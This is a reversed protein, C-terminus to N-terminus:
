NALTSGLLAGGALYTGSDSAPLIDYTRDHAYPILEVALVHLAGLADGPQLTDLRQGTATPHSGSVEILQGNDLTLRVVAHDTVRMQRTAIVPVAILEGGHMSLVLDGERLEAIARQGSPTAIQTDPSNCRPCGAPESECACIMCGGTVPDAPECVNQGTGVPGCRGVACCAEGTGCTDASPTCPAPPSCDAVGIVCTGSRDCTQIADIQVCTPDGPGCIECDEGCAKGECAQYLGCAESGAFLDLAGVCSPPIANTCADPLCRLHRWGDCCERAPMTDLSCSDGLADEGCDPLV